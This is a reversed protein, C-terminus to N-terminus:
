LAFNNGTYKIYFMLIKYFCVSMNSCQATTIKPRQTNNQGDSLNIADYSLVYSNHTKKKASLIKRQNVLM